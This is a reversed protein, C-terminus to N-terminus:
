IHMVMNTLYLTRPESIPGSILNDWSQRRICQTCESTGNLTHPSSAHWWCQRALHQQGVAGCARFSLPRASLTYIRLRIAIALCPPATSRSLSAALHSLSSTRQTIRAKSTKSRITGDAVLENIKLERRHM